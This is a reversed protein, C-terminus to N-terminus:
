NCTLSLLAPLLVPELLEAVFIRVVDSKFTLLTVTELGAEAFTPADNL